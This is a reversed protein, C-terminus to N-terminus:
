FGFGREATDIDILEIDPEASYELSFVDYGFVNVLIRM